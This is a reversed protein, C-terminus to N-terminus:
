VKNLVNYEPDFIGALGLVNQTSPSYKCNKIADVLTKTVIPDVHNNEFHKQLVDALITPKYHVNSTGGKQTNYYAGRTAAVYTGALEM